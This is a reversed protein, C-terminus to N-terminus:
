VKATGLAEDVTAVIPILMDIKGHKFMAAVTPQAAAITARGHWGKCSRGITVMSGMCLSSIFALRSLDFVIHPPRKACLITLQRELAAGALMDASGIMALIATGDPRTTSEFTMGAM